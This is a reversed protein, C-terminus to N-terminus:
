GRSALKITMYTQNRGGTIDRGGFCQGIHEIYDGAALYTQDVILHRNIQSANGSGIMQNSRRIEGGNKNIYAISSENTGMGVSGICVQAAIDYYGTVPATFRFNTTPDYNNNTDFDEIDHNVRTAVGSSLAYTGGRYVSIKYPNGEAITIPLGAPHALPSYVPTSIAENILTYGLMWLSLTTSTVALIRGYKTGGTAQSIRVFMGVAYKTTADTPVTVIGTNSAATYSSFTWAEGAATWGVDPLGTLNKVSVRKSQGASTDVITLYDDQAVVLLETLQSNRKAM